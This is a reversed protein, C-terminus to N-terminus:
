SKLQPVRLKYIDCIEAIGEVIKSPHNESLDNTGVHLIIQSPKKALCPKIHHKIASTKAGRYTEVYVKSQGAKVSRQLRRPDLHKVM